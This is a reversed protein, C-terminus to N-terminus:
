PNLVDLYGRSIATELAKSAELLEEYRIRLRHLKKIQADDPKGDEGAEQPCHFFAALYEARADAVMQLVPKIQDMHLEPIEPNIADRNIDRMIREFEMLLRKIETTM